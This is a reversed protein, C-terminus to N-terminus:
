KGRTDTALHEVNKNKTTGRKRDRQGEKKEGKRENRKRLESRAGNPLNELTSSDKIAITQGQGSRGLGAGSGERGGSRSDDSM